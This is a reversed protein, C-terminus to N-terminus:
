GQLSKLKLEVQAACISCNLVHALKRVLEENELEFPQICEPWPFNSARLAKRDDERLEDVSLGKRAARRELAEEFDSKEAMSIM